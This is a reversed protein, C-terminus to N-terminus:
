PPTSRAASSLWRREDLEDGSRVHLYASDLLVGWVDHQRQDWAANGIRVPRAGDYGSIHDLVEETLKREGGIGYM